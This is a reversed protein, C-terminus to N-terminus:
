SDNSEASAGDHLRFVRPRQLFGPCCNNKQVCRYLFQEPAALLWSALPRQLPIELLKTFQIM